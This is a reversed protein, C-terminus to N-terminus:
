PAFSRRSPCDHITLWQQEAWCAGSGAVQCEACSGMMLTTPVTAIDRNLLAEAVKVAQDERLGRDVLFAVRRASRKAEGTLDRVGLVAATPVSPLTGALRPALPTGVTPTDVQLSMPGPPAALDSGKSGLRESSKRNLVARGLSISKASTPVAPASPAELPLAHPDGSTPLQWTCHGSASRQVRVGLRERIGRIQKPTLGADTLLTVLEHGPRPGLCLHDLLLQDHSM